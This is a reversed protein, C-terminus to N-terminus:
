SISGPKRAVIFASQTLLDAAPLDRYRPLLRPRLEDVLAVHREGFDRGELLETRYPDLKEEDGLLKTAKVEVTYGLRGLADRYRNAMARNSIGLNSGMLRYARDPVTLFTLPHLGRGTFVGLDGFDLQHAMVGGPELVRDIAALAADIDDVHQLAAVSVAYRFHGAPVARDVQEAGTGAELRVRAPDLPPDEGPRVVAEAAARAGPDLADVLAAYIAQRRGLDAQTDFRDVAVVEAAGAAILRLGLALSEGPGIELVAAGSLEEPRLEGHEVLVEFAADAYAAAEAPTMEAGSARAGDPTRGRRADVGARLNRAVQRAIIPATRMPAIM